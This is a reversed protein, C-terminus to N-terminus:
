GIAMLVADRLMRGMSKEDPLRNLAAILEATMNGAQGGSGNEASRRLESNAIISGAYHPIYLEPGQEGVVYPMGGYVPGGSAEPTILGSAVDVRVGKLLSIATTNGTLEAVLTLKSTYLNGAYNELATRLNNVYTTASTAGTIMEDFGDAAAVGIEWFDEEILGLEKGLDLYRAIEEETWGDAALTERAMDFIMQNITEMHALRLNNVETILNHYEGRLGALEEKQADTKYTIGSLEKMRDSYDSIKTNLEEYDGAFDEVMGSLTDYWSLNREMEENVVALYEANGEYAPNLYDMITEAYSYTRDRTWQVWGGAKEIERSYWASTAAARQAAKEDAEHALKINYIEKALDEVEIQGVNLQNYWEAYQDYTILNAARVEELGEKVSQLSAKYEKYKQNVRETEIGADRLSQQYEEYSKGGEISAKSLENMEGSLKKVEKTFHVIVAVGAIVAVVAALPGLAATTAAGAGYMATSMKSLAGIMKPIIKIVGGIGTMLPGTAAVIGAFILIAKQGGPDLNNFGTVLESIKTVVNTVAPLLMTGLTTAANGFEAKAVKLQGALGEAEDAFTGSIRETQDMVLALAAQAKANDDLEAKTDALGMALAKNEIAAANIKVGFQELPNFEGKLGSQIAQLAQSVDTNFVAAMDAARETLVITEDAAEEADYGLNQLFSGTVTSLQKFELASLGVAQASNDAFDEIIDSADGFVTEIASTAETLEGAADVAKKMGIMIPVTFAATMVTGAKTLSSGVKGLKQSFTSEVKKIEGDLSKFDITIKVQAEGLSGLSTEGVINM